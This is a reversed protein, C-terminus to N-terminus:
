QLAVPFLTTEWTTSKVVQRDSVEFPMLTEVWVYIQTADDASAAINGDSARAEATWEKVLPASEGDAVGDVYREIKYLTDGGRAGAVTRRYEVLHQTTDGVTVRASFSFVDDTEQVTGVRSLSRIDREVVEQFAAAQKLMAQYSITSVAESSGRQTAFLIILLVTLGVLAATINDFIFQM